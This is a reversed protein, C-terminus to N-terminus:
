RRTGTVHLYSDSRIYLHVHINDHTALIEAVYITETYLMNDCLKEQDQDPVYCLATKQLIIIIGIFTNFFAEQSTVPGSWAWHAVLESWQHDDFSVWSLTIALKLLLWQHKLMWQYLTFSGNLQAHIEISPHFLYHNQWCTNSMTKQPSM